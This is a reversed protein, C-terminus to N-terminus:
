KSLKGMALNGLCQLVTSLLEEREKESYDSAERIINPIDAVISILRPVEAIDAPQIGDIVANAIHFVNSIARKSAEIGYIETKTIM